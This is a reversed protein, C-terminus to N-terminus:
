FHLKSSKFINNSDNKDIIYIWSRIDMDMDMDMHIHGISDSGYGANIWSGISIWISIRDMFVEVPNQKFTGIRIM